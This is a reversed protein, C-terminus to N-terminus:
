NLNLYNIPLATNKIFSNYFHIISTLYPYKEHGLGIKKIFQLKNKIGIGNGIGNGTIRNYNTKYNENLILYSDFISGLLLSQNDFYNNFCFKLYSDNIENKLHSFCVIHYLNESKFIYFLFDTNDTYKEIFSNLDNKNVHFIIINPFSIIYTNSFKEKIIQYELNDKNGLKGKKIILPQYKLKSKIENIQKSLNILKESLNGNIEICKTLTENISANKKVNFKKGQLM